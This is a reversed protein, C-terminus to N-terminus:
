EAVERRRAAFRLVGTALEAADFLALRPKHLDVFEPPLSQVGLGEVALPDFGASQLLLLWSSVTLAPRAQRELDLDGTRVLHPFLLDNFDGDGQPAAFTAIEGVLTGEPALLGHMAVLNSRLRSLDGLDWGPGCAILDYEGAHRQVLQELAEATTEFRAKPPPRDPHLLVLRQPTLGSSIARAIEIGDPAYVLANLAGAPVGLAKWAHILSSRKM